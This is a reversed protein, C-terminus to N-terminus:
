RQNYIIKEKEIGDLDLDWLDRGVKWVKWGNKKLKQNDPLQGKLPASDTMTIDLRYWQNDLEVAIISHTNDNSLTALKVLCGSIGLAKCLALFVISLDSCDKGRYVYGDQIIQSATRKWRINNENEKTQENYERFELSNQIHSRLKVMDMPEKVKIDGLFNLVYKDTEIQSKSRNIKSQNKKM